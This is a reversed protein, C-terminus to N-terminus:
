KVRFYQSRVVKWKDGRKVWVDIFAYLPRADVNGAVSKDTMTAQVVAVDDGLMKVDFPGFEAQVHQVTASKLDELDQEKTSVKGNSGVIRLDDAEIQSVKDVDRAQTADEWDQTLQRFFDTGYSGKSPVKASQASVLEVCVCAVLVTVLKKM